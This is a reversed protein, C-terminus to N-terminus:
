SQEQMMGICREFASLTTTVDEDSHAMCTFARAGYKSVIGETLLARALDDVAKKRSLANPIGGEKRIDITLPGATEYHVISAIHYSFFPLALSEFLDNLGRCLMEAAATAKPIAEQEEIYRLAWYSAATSIANGAMTGAVFPKPKTPNLGALCEMIEKKGGLAGASPFGHTVLKGLVSLDADVGYLEQAGGLAVRFGTVVEDMIFLSEYRDCLERCVGYFDPDFPIAGAECGAGEVILAAVGGEGSGKEFAQALGDVDGPGVSIVNCFHQEPIGQAQFTGSYPIQMDYVLEDAWGHYCGGIRLLKTKGTYARALRVAALDAETGSQFFRVMDVNKMHRAILESSKIEWESTWGFGVGEGQLVEVVKEILPPYNHGLIIPGAMMLYDIFENGDVDWVRDGLARAITLPYPNKIVLMHQAGGPICRQAADFLQKSRPTREAFQKALDAMKEDPIAYIPSEALQERRKRIEHFDMM